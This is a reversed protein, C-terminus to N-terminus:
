SSALSCARFICPCPAPAPHTSCELCLSCCTNLKQPPLMHVQWEPPDALFVGTNRSYPRSFATPATSTTANQLAWLGNCPWQSMRLSLILSFPPYHASAVHDSKCRLLIAIAAAHTYITLSCPCFCLATVLSRCYDQCSIISLRYHNQSWKFTNFVVNLPNDDRDDSTTSLSSPLCAIWLHRYKYPLSLFLLRYFFCVSVCVCM